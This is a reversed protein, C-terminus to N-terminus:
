FLANSGPNVHKKPIDGLFKGNKPIRFHWIKKM